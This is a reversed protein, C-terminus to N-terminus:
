KATIPGLRSPSIPMTHPSTPIALPTLSTLRDPSFACRSPSYNNQCVQIQLRNPDEKKWFGHIVHVKILHRVDSDFASMLFDIDHLYNFEWCEKILPDGLLGKLSVTGKNSNQGLSRITTLHFPSAVVRRYSCPQQKAQEEAPLSEEEGEEPSTRRKKLPPSVARSLSRPTTRSIGGNRVDGAKGLEADQVTRKSPRNNEMTVPLTM